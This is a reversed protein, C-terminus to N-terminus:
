KRETEKTPITFLTCEGRVGADNNTQRHTTFWIFLNLTWSKVFSEDISKHFSMSM